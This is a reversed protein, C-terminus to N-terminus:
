KAGYHYVTWVVGNEDVEETIDKLYCTNRSENAPYKYEYQIAKTDTRVYDTEVVTVWPSGSVFLIAALTTLKFMIWNIM